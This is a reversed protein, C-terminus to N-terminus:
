KEFYNLLRKYWPTTTSYQEILQILIEQRVRVHKLDLPWWYTGLSKDSPKYKVLDKEIITCALHDKLNSNKAARFLYGCIGNLKIHKGYCVGLADKKLLIKAKKVLLLKDKKHYSM